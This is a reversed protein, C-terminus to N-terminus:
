VWLCIMIKQPVKLKWTRNNSNPMEAHILTQYHSKVIFWGNGMLFINPKQLLALNANHRFLRNWDVGLDRRWSINTTIHRSSRCYNCKKSRAINYPCPYQERLTKQGLWKDEWFHIQSGDMVIFSGFKMIRSFFHSDGPKWKVQLLLKSGLYKNHLILEMLISSVM